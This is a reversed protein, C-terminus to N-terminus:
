AVTDTQESNFNELEAEFDDEDSRKVAFWVAGAVAALALGSAIMLTKPNKVTEKLKDLKSPKEVPLTVVNNDSM